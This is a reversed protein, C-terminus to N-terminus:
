GKLSWNEWIFPFQYTLFHTNELNRQIRVMRQKAFPVFEHFQVQLNKINKIFGCDILHEILDFEGGEINIKMLDIREINNARMFEDAKMLYGDGVDIGRKFLSSSDGNIGIKVTRNDNSLGFSHVLIKENRSFKQELLRAFETVVEFVHITCCYMSFIHSAWEGEYGGLDFVLSTPELDYILRFTKDGEVNFWPIVRKQQPSQYIKLSVRQLSRSAKMLILSIKKLIPIFLVRALYHKASPTNEMMSKIFAM